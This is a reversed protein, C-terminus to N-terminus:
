CSRVLRSPVIRVVFRLPPPVLGLGRGAALVNVAQGGQCVATVHPRILRARM